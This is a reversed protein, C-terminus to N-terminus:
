VFPRTSTCVIRRIYIRCGCVGRSNITFGIITFAFPSIGIQRCAFILCGDIQRTTKDFTIGIAASQALLRAEVTSCTVDGSNHPTIDIHIQTTVFIPCCSIRSSSSSEIDVIISGRIWQQIVISIWHCTLIDFYHLTTTHKTTVIKQTRRLTIHRHHDPLCHTKISLPIWLFFRCLVIGNIFYGCNISTSVQCRIGCRALLCM